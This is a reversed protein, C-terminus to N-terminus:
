YTVSLSQRLKLKQSYVTFDFSCVFSRLILGSCNPMHGSKDSTSVYFFSSTICMDSLKCSMERKVAPAGIFEALYNELKLEQDRPM